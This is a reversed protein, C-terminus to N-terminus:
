DYVFQKTPIIIHFRQGGYVVKPNRIGALGAQHADGHVKAWKIELSHTVVNSICKSILYFIRVGSDHLFEAFVVKLLHGLLLDIFIPFLIDDFHVAM